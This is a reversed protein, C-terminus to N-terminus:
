QKSRKTRKQALPSPQAAFRFLGADRVMIVGPVRNRAQFKILGREGYKKSYRVLNQYGIMVSVLFAGFTYLPSLGLAAILLATFIMGGVTGGALLMLFNMGRIGLVEPPRDVGKNILYM